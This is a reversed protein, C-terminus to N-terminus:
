WVFEKHLEQPLGFIGRGKLKKLKKLNTLPFQYNEPFPNNSFVLWELNELEGIWDPLSTIKNGDIKLTELSKLQRIEDPLKTFNNNSLNLEKLNKLMTISQPLSSLRGGFISLISLKQLKGISEPLEELESKAIQIHKLNELTTIDSPLKKGKITVDKRPHIFLEEIEVKEFLDNPLNDIKALDLHYKKNSYNDWRYKIYRNKQAAENTPPFKKKIVSVIKEGQERGFERAPLLSWRAKKGSSGPKISRYSDLYDQALEMKKKSMRNYSYFKNDFSFLVEHDSKIVVNTLAVKPSRVKNYSNNIKVLQDQPLGLDMDDAAGSIHKIIIYQDAQLRGQLINIFQYIRSHNDGGPSAMKEIVSTPLPDPLKPKFDIDQSEEQAIVSDFSLIEGKTKAVFTKYFNIKDINSLPKLNNGFADITMLKDDIKGIAYRAYFDDSFLSGVIKENVIVVDRLSYNKGKISGIYFVKKADLKELSIFSKVIDELLMFNSSIQKITHTADGPLASVFARLNAGLEVNFPVDQGYLLIVEPDKKFYTAINLPSEKDRTESLIAGISVVKDTDLALLSFWELGPLKIQAMDSFRKHANQMREKIQTSTALYDPVIPFVSSILSKYDYFLQYSKAFFEGLQAGTRLQFLGNKVEVDVLHAAAPTDTYIQSVIPYSYSKQIAQKHQKFLLEDNYGAAFCSTYVLINTNIRSEFFDLVKPFLNLSMGAISQGKLGHGELYITWWPLPKNHKKFYGRAVFITDLSDLFYDSRDTHQPLKRLENLESITEMHNVKLGLMYEIESLEQTSTLHFKAVESPKALAGLYSHPIFLILHDDIKKIIWDSMKFGSATLYIRRRNKITDETAQEILISHARNFDKLLEAPSKDVIDESLAKAVLSASVIIPAPKQFIARYFSKHAADVDGESDDLIVMLGRPAYQYNLSVYRTNLSFLTVPLMLIVLLWVAFNKIM